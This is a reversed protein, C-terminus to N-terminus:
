FFFPNIGPVGTPNPTPTVPAQREVEEVDARPVMQGHGLPGTCSTLSFVAISALALLINKMM